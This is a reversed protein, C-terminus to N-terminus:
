EILKKQITILQCYKLQKCSFVVLTTIPTTQTTIPTTKTHFICFFADNSDNNTANKIVKLRISKEEGMKPLVVTSCYLLHTYPLYQNGAVM